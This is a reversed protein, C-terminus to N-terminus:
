LGNEIQKNQQHINYAKDTFLIGELHDLEHQVVRALIGKFKYRVKKGDINKGEVIIKEPRKVMGFTNLVSLCAEEMECEKKSTKLISPNILAYQKKHDVDSFVIIQFPFGVQNASLGVGKEKIMLTLMDKIFTKIEATIKEVPATKSRLIKNNTDTIINM